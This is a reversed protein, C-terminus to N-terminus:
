AKTNTAKPSQSDIMERFYAVTTKLGEALPVKPQWGLLSKAREINPKRQKPDDQPLPLYRIKIERGVCKGVQEALENMTFEGPNGINVPMHIDAAGANMLRIIGDVLDSVYCFSRTQTGDGYVTLKRDAFLRCSL